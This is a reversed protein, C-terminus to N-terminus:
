CRVAEALADTELPPDLAAFMAAPVPPLFRPPTEAAIPVPRGNALFEVSSRFDEWTVSLEPDDIWAMVEGELDIAEFCPVEIEAMMWEFANAEAEDYDLGMEVSERVIASWEDIRAQTWGNVADLYYPRGVPTSSPEIVRIPRPELEQESPDDCVVEEPEAEVMEPADRVHDVPAPLPWAWGVREFQTRLWAVLDGGRQVYQGFDKSRGLLGRRTRRPDRELWVRAAEIGPDDNDTAILLGPCRALEALAPPKPTTSSAGGITAVNVLHGLDQFGILADIEGEVIVVVAPEGTRADLRSMRRSPFLYGRRTGNLCQDKDGDAPDGMSEDLRRVNCGSWRGPDPAPLPMLIGRSELIMGKKRPSALCRIPGHFRESPNWGLRFRRITEDTLGRGHLWARAADGESSWLRAEGEDVIRGVAEQWREDQWPEAVVPRDSRVVRLSQRTLYRSSGGALRRAADGRTLGDAQQVFDIADGAAGCSFCKFRWKPSRADPPYIHCSPNHDPGHFPCRCEEGRMEIGRSHIIGLLNADGAIAEFDLSERHADGSTQYTESTEKQQVSDEAAGTRKRGYTNAPSSSVESVESVEEHEGTNPNM